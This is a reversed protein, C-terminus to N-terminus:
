GDCLYFPEVCINTTECKLHNPSCTVTGNQGCNALSEDSTKNDKCDNVGNCLQLSLLFLMNHFKELVCVVSFIGIQPNLIRVQTKPICKHNGCTFQDEACSPYECNM